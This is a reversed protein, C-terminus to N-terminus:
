FFFIERAQDKLRISLAKPLAEAGNYVQGEVELHKKLFYRLNGVVEFCGETM